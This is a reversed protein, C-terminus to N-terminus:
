AESSDDQAAVEADLATFATAADAFGETQIAQAVVEIDYNGMLAMDANTYDTPIIVTTFLKATADEVLVNNYNYYMKSADGRTADLTFATTNIGAYTAVDAKKYLTEGTVDLKSELDTYITGLILNIRATETAPIQKGYNPGKVFKPNTESEAEESNFAPNDIMTKDILTVVIRAYSSGEIGTITPDKVGIRGPTLNEGTEEEWGPEELDIDVDAGVTFVNTAKEEDTLFALTAGIAIAAILCISLMGIIIKKTKTM